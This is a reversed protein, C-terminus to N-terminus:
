PWRARGAVCIPMRRYTQMLQWFLRGYGTSNWYGAGDESTGGQDYSISAAGVAKSAVAGQATGGSRKDKATQTGLVSLHHAVHLQRGYTTQSGFRGDPVALIAQEYFFACRKESTGEFETFVELFEQVESTLDM